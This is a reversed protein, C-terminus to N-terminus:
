PVDRFPHLGHDTLATYWVTLIVPVTVALLLMAAGTIAPAGVFAVMLQPMAKNIVGMALNYLLAAVVFPAALSFGLAFTHSVASVVWAFSWAMDLPTGLPLFVYTQALAAVVMVPFGSLMIFGLASWYLLLGIAPQPGDALPSGFIQALSTSQAIIVGALLLGHAILRISLGLVLGVVIERAGILVADRFTFLEPLGVIIPTLLGALSLALVLRVRMPLAQEGIGPLLSVLAGIRLFVLFGTWLTIQAITLSEALLVNM